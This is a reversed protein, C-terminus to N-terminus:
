TKIPYQFLAQPATEIYLHRRITYYPNGNSLYRCVVKSHYGVVVVVGGGWWGWVWVWVVGVGVGWGGGGVGVGVGVGGGMCIM